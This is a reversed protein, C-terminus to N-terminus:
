VLEETNVEIILKYIVDKEINGYINDNEKNDIWKWELAYKKCTMKEVVIDEINLENYSVYNNENGKIYKQGNENIEKLKYKIPLNEINEEAFKLDCIAHNDLANTLEFYYTNGLGPYIVPKGNYKENNFISLDEKWKQGKSTVKFEKSVEIPPQETPKNQNNNDDKINNTNQNNNNQMNLNNENNNIINGEAIENAITNQTVNNDVTNKNEEKEGLIITPKRFNFWIIVFIIILLLLLLLLLLYKKKKNKEEEKKEINEKM